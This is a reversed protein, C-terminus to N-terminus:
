YLFKIAVKPYTKNAIGAHFVLGAIANALDDHSNPAHDIIDQLRGARRELNCLQGILAPDPPLEVRCTNLIPLLETYLQSRNKETFKLTIGHRNFETQPYQGAYRDSYAVNVRYAKLIESYEQTIEAPSGRRGWVGCVVVKTGEKYGIALTFQDARASKGGGAPDVFAIYTRNHQPPITLPRPRVCSEVVDRSVYSALGDRFEALWETKAAETDDTLADDIIKQDLLPNFLPTSGKVILVDNDDQGYHKQYKDYLLGRKAYPSSIGILLGGTTALAPVAARYIEKDNAESTDSDRFFAIEDFIVALLARGRIARFNSTSVEITVGNTLEISEASQKHVLSNFIPSTDFMGKIFNLAVKAQSRDTALLAIVGREGAALKDTLGELEAGITAMYVAIAAATHSKASRRGAIAWLERVRKQPATRGGSLTSFIESQEDTMPLAFAGALVSRWAQWSDGTFADAYLEPTQMAELINM